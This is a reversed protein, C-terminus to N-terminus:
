LPDSNIDALIQNRMVTVTAPPGNRRFSNPSPSNTRALQAMRMESPKVNKDPNANMLQKNRLFQARRRRARIYASTVIYVLCLVVVGGVACGVILGITTGNTSTTSAKPSSGGTNSPVQTPLSDINASVKYSPSLFMKELKPYVISGM